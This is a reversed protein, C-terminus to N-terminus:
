MSCSGFANPSYRCSVPLRNLSAAVTVPKFQETNTQQGYAMKDGPTDLIDNGLVKNSDGVTSTDFLWPLKVARIARARRQQRNARKQGRRTGTVLGRQNAWAEVHGSPWNAALTLDADDDEPRLHTCAFAGCALDAEPTSM